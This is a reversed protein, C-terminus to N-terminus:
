LIFYFKRDTSDIYYISAELGLYTLEINFIIRTLESLCPPMSKFFVFNSVQLPFCASKNGVYGSVVHSQISLVKIIEEAM